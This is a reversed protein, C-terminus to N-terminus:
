NYLLYKARVKKFESLGDQWTAKIEKASKGAIIQKRLKDGGALKDFFLNKLFFPENKPMNQYANILFSLDLTGRNRITEIDMKTLDYGHCTKGEHKPYKAGPMPTPTFRYPAEVLDPHGYVQFQTNTGRGVSVTTGEFFCLSPYLYISRNNPLNPSPKIPLEYISEHKYNECAVTTLKCSVGGKLWGEGNVMKAYEAITM